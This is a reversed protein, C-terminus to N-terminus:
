EGCVGPLTLTFPEACCDELPPAGGGVPAGLMEICATVERDEGATGSIVHETMYSGAMATGLYVPKRVGGVTVVVWLRGRYAACSGTPAEVKVNVYILTDEPIGEGGYCVAMPIPWDDPDATAATGIAMVLASEITTTPCCSGGSSSSSSSSSGDDESDSDDPDGDSDSEGDDSDDDGSQSDGSSGTDEGGHEIDDEWKPVLAEIKLGTETTAFTVSAILRARENDAMELEEEGDKEHLVMRGASSTFICIVEYETGATKGAVSWGPSETLSVGELKPIFSRTVSDPQATNSWAVRGEGVHLTQTNSRFSVPYRGGNVVRQPKKHVRIITGNASRSTLLGPGTSVVLSEARELLKNWADRSPPGDFPQRQLDRFM